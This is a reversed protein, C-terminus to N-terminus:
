EVGECGPASDNATHWGILRQEVPNRPTGEDALARVIAAKTGRSSHFYMYAIAGAEAADPCYNERVADADIDLAADLFGACLASFYRSGYGSAYIADQLIAEAQHHKGHCTKCLAELEDDAYEWAMRGKIYRPHHVHLQESGNGCDSCEWEALSLIELRRKQWRPDALQQQYNM